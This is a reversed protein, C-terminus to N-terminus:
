PTEYDVGEIGKPYEGEFIYLVKKTLKSIQIKPSIGNVFCFKQIKVAAEQNEIDHMLIKM